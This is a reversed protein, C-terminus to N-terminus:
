SSASAAAVLISFATLSWGVWSGTGACLSRSVAFKRTSPSPSLSISQSYAPMPSRQNSRPLKATFLNRKM